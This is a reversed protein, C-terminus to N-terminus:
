FVLIYSRLISSPLFMLFLHFHALKTKKTKNQKKIISISFDHVVHIYIM